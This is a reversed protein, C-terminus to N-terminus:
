EVSVNIQNNGVLNLVALLPVNKIYIQIVEAYSLDFEKLSSLNNLTVVTIKTTASRIFTKFNSLDSLIISDLKWGDSDSELRLTELNSLKDITITTIKSNYSLNLEKLTIMNPITALINNDIGNNSVNLIELTKFNTLWSYDVIGTNYSVNLNTVKTCKTIVSIKLADLNVSAISLTTLNPAENLFTFSDLTSCRDVNLTELATMEDFTISKNVAANLSLVKLSFLKSLSLSKISVNDNRIIETIGCNSINVDIMEFKDDVSLDLSQLLPLNKLKLNLIQVEISRSIRNFSPLDELTIESITLTQGQKLEELEITKLYEFGKLRLIDIKNNKLNLVELMPFKDNTIFDYKFLSPNNSLNLTKLSVAQTITKSITDSLGCNTLNLIELGNINAVFSYDILASNGTLNLNYITVNKPAAIFTSISKNSLDLTNLNINEGIEVTNIYGLNGFSVVSLKDQNALYVRNITSDSDYHLERLNTVNEVILEKVQLNQFTLKEINPFHHLGKTTEIVGNGVIGEEDKKILVDGTVANAEDISIKGDGSTDAVVTLYAFLSADPIGNESNRIKNDLIDINFEKSYTISTDDAYIFRATIKISVTDETEVGQCVISGNEAIQFYKSADGSLIWEITTGDSLGALLTDGEKYTLSIEEAKENVQAEFKQQKEEKTEGCSVLSFLGFILMVFTLVGLFKKRM